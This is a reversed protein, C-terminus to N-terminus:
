DDQCQRLRTEKLETYLPRHESYACIHKKDMCMVVPICQWEPESKSEIKRKTCCLM